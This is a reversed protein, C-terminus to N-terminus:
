SRGRQHRAVAEIHPVNIHVESWQIDPAPRTRRWQALDGLAPAQTGALFRDALDGEIVLRLRAMVSDPDNGTLACGPFDPATAEYDGDPLRRIGVTVLM